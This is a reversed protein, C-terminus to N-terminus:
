PCLGEQPKDDSNMYYTKAGSKSSVAQLCYTQLNGAPKYTFTTGASVKFGQGGNVASASSPYTKLSVYDSELQSAANELDSLLQANAARQTTGRYTVIVIAVLIVM